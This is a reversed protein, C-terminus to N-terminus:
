RLLIAGSASSAPLPERSQCIAQRLCLHHRAEGHQRARRPEGSRAPPHLDTHDGSATKGSGCLLTPEQARIKELMAPTGVGGQSSFPLVGVLLEYLIVGLSYVDTRTDINRETSDAQEPSMYDPTGVVGGAETYMTAQSLRPGAANALGFDIIKPVPKQDLLPKRRTEKDFVGRISAGAGGGLTQGSANGILALSWGGLRAHIGGQRQSNGKLNLTITQLGVQQNSM